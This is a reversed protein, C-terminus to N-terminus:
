EEDTLTREYSGEFEDEISITVKRNNSLLKGKITTLFNGKLPVNPVNLHVDKTITNGAADYVNFYFDMNMATEPIPFYFVGLTKENGSENNYSGIQQEVIAWYGEDSQEGSTGYEGTKANYTTPIQSDKGVVTVTSAYDPTRLTEGGDTTIIRLKAFPRKLTFSLDGERTRLDVTESCSYGDYMEPGIPAVEDYVKSARIATLNGATFKDTGNPRLLVNSNSATNSFFYANAYYPTELGAAAQLETVQVDVKRVIDAWFVFKYEAAFLRASFEAERYSSTSTLPKIIMLRKLLVDKDTYIEMIHRVFLSKGELNKLGGDGSNSGYTQLYQPLSTTMVVDVMGERVVTEDLAMDNSCSSFGLAAFVATLLWASFFQKKKM